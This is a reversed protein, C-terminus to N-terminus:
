EKPKEPHSGELIETAQDWADDAADSELVPAPLDEPLSVREPKMLARNWCMYGLQIYSRAMAVWRPDADLTNDVFCVDLDRLLREEIEKNANVADVTIAPVSLYGKVLPKEM